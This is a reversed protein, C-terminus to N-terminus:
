QKITIQEKNRVVIQPKENFLQLVGTVCIEKDNYAQEPATGFKARDEGFIVVTLPQNPYAAGMNLLTPQGKSRELYRATFVKACVTISDGIHQAAEEAKISAVVSTETAKVEAVEMAPPPTAAAIAPEKVVNAAKLKPLYKVFLKSLRKTREQFRPAVSIYTYDDGAYKRIGKLKYQSLMELSPRNIFYQHKYSNLGKDGFLYTQRGTSKLSVSSDNELDLVVKDQDSINSVGLGYGSFFAFLAPGVSKLKLTMVSSKSEKVSLAFTEIVKQKSKNYSIGKLKQASLFLPSFLLATFLIRMLM